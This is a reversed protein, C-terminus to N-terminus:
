GGRIWPSRIFNCTLFPIVGRTKPARIAAVTAGADSNACLVCGLLLVVEDVLLVEFDFDDFAPVEDDLLDVVVLAFGPVLAEFLVGALVDFVAGALLVGLVAVVAFGADAGAAGAGLLGAVVVAEAGLVGAALGAPELLAEDEAGFVGGDGPMTQTFVFV